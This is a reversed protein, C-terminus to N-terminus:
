NLDEDENDECPTPQPFPPLPAAPTAREPTTSTSFLRNRLPSMFNLGM